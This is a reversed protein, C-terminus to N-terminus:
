KKFRNGTNSYVISFICLVITCATYVWIFWYMISEIGLIITLVGIIIVIKGAFRCLAAADYKDRESKPKTNFGALLFWGRGTLLYLGVLILLIGLLACILFISM